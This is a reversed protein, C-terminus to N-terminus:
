FKKFLRGKKWGLNENKICNYLMNVFKCYMM